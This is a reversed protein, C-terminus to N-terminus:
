IPNDCRITMQVRGKVPTPWKVNVLNLGAGQEVQMYPMAYQAANSANTIAGEAVLGQVNRARSGFPLYAAGDVVWTDAATNQNHEILLPSVTAQTVGNFSNGEFTINRFNAFNLTAVSTDLMEVRDISATSNRFVNNSVALGALSHGTGKPAIVLFRFNAAANSVLFLNGTITLGGFTYGTVYDPIEDHENSMEVFCNDIYNGVIFGRLNRTTFVLGARRVGFPETDEAFIHNGLIMHSGGGLVGFHAFYAARNNRIKTDNANANFGVTVRDQARLDFEWSQFQCSEISMGQCGLGTSTIARDKASNFTCDAFRFLKGGQPLMVGSAQNNSLFEIGVIEFKSFDTFGSFDLMYKYRHFTYTRTGAGGWFPQSLQLTGAGVNKSTVYVERGVGTGSIRAGVPIAAINAVGTLTNPQAPAYTGVSTVSQTTWAAGPTVTFQGHSLVRRQGFSTLGTLAAVDIPATLEVRRGNLDLSVHDTFYFLAQLAKKFGLLESGFAAAYTDLNYNRTCALRQADPMSLTGEFKVPNEFTLHSGIFYNGPSVVVTKGVAATDAADFAARDDTIGDGVAGFDRVDVWDFMDAHFVSTVDEITIDDIRVVGGTAGTLDLGFHGYVPAAGWVMNVGQRNGSGIIASVTVVSGYATLAVNPGTQVAATVNTGSSSGAWAAIRVSPLAGSIAKVKATVRLYLGPQIPIQQFCRLKQTASTKQLELCGGFDQDSPVYAANPQADYSGQGPRGDERSWLSLGASFPPPMLVLGETIAKNM